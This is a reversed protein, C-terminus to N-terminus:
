CCDADPGTALRPPRPHPRTPRPRLHIGALAAASFGPICATGHWRKPRGTAPTPRGAFHLPRCGTDVARGARRRLESPYSFPRAM